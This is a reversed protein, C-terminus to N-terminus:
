QAYLQLVRAYQESSLIRRMNDRCDIKTSILDHRMRLLESTISMLEARSRGAMSADFLAKELDHVANVKAYTSKHHADRWNALARSQQESLNLQDRYRIVVRMLNPMPAAHNMRTHTNRMGQQGALASQSIFVVATLLAVNILKM